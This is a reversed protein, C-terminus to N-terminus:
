SAGSDRDDPGAAYRANIEAIRQRFRTVREAMRDHEAAIRRRESAVLGAELRPLDWAGLAAADRTRGQEELRAIMASRTRHLCDEFLRILLDHERDLEAWIVEDNGGAAVWQSVLSETTGPDAQDDWHYGMDSFVPCRTRRGFERRPVEEADPDWVYLPAHRRLGTGTGLALRGSTDLSVALGGRDRVSFLVGGRVKRWTYEAHENGSHVRTGSQDRRGILQELLRRMGPTSGTGSMDPGPRATSLRHRLDEIPALWRALSDGNEDHEEALVANQDLIAAVVSSALGLMRADARVGTGELWSRVEAPLDASPAGRSAAIVEGAALGEACERPRLPGGDGLVRLVFRLRLRDAAAPRRLASGLLAARSWLRWSGGPAIWDGYVWAPVRPYGPQFERM